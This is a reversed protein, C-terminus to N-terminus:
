QELLSSGEKVLVFLGGDGRSIRLDEDLYSILLWSQAQEGPIPLKLPPLGYLARSIGAAAEQVPNLLQQVPSLTVKQGFVEVSEPLDFRSKIEPPKFTAEKFQVQIRSPSRVEFSAYASFSFTAFPSSLTSSNEVTQNSTDIAQTIKEVKLLPTAGVALLPLLESNATYRISARPPPTSNALGHLENNCMDSLVWNGDLLNPVETPNPNPNVAELKSILESAEARVEASARFGFDTGYVTDVLARKLDGNDRRTPPAGDGAVGAWEDEIERIPSDPAAFRTLEPEPVSIPEPKEGWEDPISPTAQWKSGGGDSSSAFTRSPHRPYSLRPHQPHHLVPTRPLLLSPPTPLVSMKRGQKVLVFLGGDGRSIRLDEDVYSILLWSRTRAGPIPLKLSPLGFLRQSISAAAADEVPNLVQQVPHLLQQAPSLTIKQGFIEVNEPIDLRPKIAPPEFTVEKFQVQIRSPSRVEFSASASFSFTLFGSSLTCSNEVTQTRTDIAQTIKEVKLLPTSGVALLPSLESNATYVLVWTGDLVAPVEIPNPNPNVKELKTVLESVEARVQASARFGFDTGHATDVLARKLKLTEIAESVGAAVSSVTGIVRGSEDKIERIAEDAAGEIVGSAIGIVRGSEGKIEGVTSDAAGDLVDSAGTVVNTVTTKVRDSEDKIDRIASGPEGAVVDSAIRTIRSSEDKIEHIASDAAGTVLGSAGSIIDSAGAVTKSTVSGVRDVENKMKSFVSNAAGAIFGSPGSSVKEKDKDEIDRIPSDPATSRTLDPEPVSIPDPKGGWKDPIFPIRKGIRKSGGASSSFRAVFTRSTHRASSLSPHQPHHLVPTTPIDYERYDVVTTLFSAQRKLHRM